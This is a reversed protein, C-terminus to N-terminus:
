RSIFRTAIAEAILRNGARNPHVWDHILVSGFYEQDAQGFIKPIDIWDVDLEDVVKDFVQDYDPSM